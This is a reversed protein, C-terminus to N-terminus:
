VWKVILFNEFLKDKKGARIVVEGGLDKRYRLSNRLREEFYRFNFGERSNQVCTGSIWYRVINFVDQLVRLMPM